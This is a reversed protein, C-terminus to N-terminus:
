KKEELGEFRYYLVKEGSDVYERIMLKAYKAKASVPYRLIRPIRLAVFVESGEEREAGITKLKQNSVRSGWLYYSRRRPTMNQLDLEDASEFGALKIPPPTGVYVTQFAGDQKEWRLEFNACFLRGREWEDFSTNADFHALRLTEQPDPAVLRGVPVRELYMYSAEPWKLTSVTASLDDLRAWQIIDSM